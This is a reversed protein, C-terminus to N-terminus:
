APYCTDKLFGPAFRAGGISIPEGPARWTSETAERRPMQVVIVQAIPATSTLGLRSELQRVNNRASPLDAKLRILEDMAEDQVLGAEWRKPSAEGVKAPRHESLLRQAELYAHDTLRAQETDRLRKTEESLAYNDARMTRSTVSEGMGWEFVMARAIQTVKELDNAAGNTVRGFVLEEAARGALAMVMWDLLEEKTELYREEEPLHLVYGLATGRAIITAKQPQNGVLHSVLAHGGEHYALIRKEKDTVVRRQQLGAVVRELAYDFDAQTM